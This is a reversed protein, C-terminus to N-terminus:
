LLWLVLHLSRFRLLLKIILDLFIGLVGCRILLCLLAEGDSFIDRWVSQSLIVVESPFAKDPRVLFLFLISNNSFLHTLQFLIFHFLISNNSFFISLFIKRM